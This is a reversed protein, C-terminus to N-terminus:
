KSFVAPYIFYVIDRTGLVFTIEFVDKVGKLNGRNRVLMRDKLIKRGRLKAYVKM